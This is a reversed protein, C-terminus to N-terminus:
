PLLRIREVIAGLSQYRKKGKKKRTKILRCFRPCDPFMLIGSRRLNERCIFVLSLSFEFDYIDGITQSPRLCFQLIPLTKIKGIRGLNRRHNAIIGSLHCVHRRELIQSLSRIIIRYIPLIQSPRCFTFDGITQYNGSMHFGPKDHVCLCRTEPVSRQSNDSIDAFDQVTPM